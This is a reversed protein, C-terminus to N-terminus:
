DMSRRDRVAFETGNERAVLLFALKQEESDDLIAVDQGYRRMCLFARRAALAVIQAGAISLNLVVSNMTAALM